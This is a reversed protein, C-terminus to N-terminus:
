AEDTAQDLGYRALVLPLIEGIPRASTDRSSLTNTPQSELMQELVIVM